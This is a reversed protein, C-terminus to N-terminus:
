GISRIGFGIMFMLYIVAVFYQDVLGFPSIGSLTLFGPISAIWTMFGVLYIMGGQTQIDWGFTNMVACIIMVTLFFLLIQTYERHQENNNFYRLDAQKIGNFWDTFTLGTSTFNQYTWFADEELIQYGNGLDVLLRGKIQPYSENV